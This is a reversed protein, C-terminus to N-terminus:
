AESVEDLGQGEQLQQWTRLLLTNTNGRVKLPLGVLVVCRDEPALDPVCRRIRQVAQQLLVALSAEQGIVPEVGFAIHIQRAVRESPTVAFIPLRPRRSSLRLATAGSATPAILCRAGVRHALDVAADVLAEVPSSGTRPVPSPRLHAEATKLIRRAWAVTDVPYRGVATEDSLLIGDAGQLLALTVDTVEARTPRPLDVMSAMTQTAVHVPRHHRRATQIIRRQLHPLETLDVALGLDGRAVIVADALEVIRELHDLAERREIKVMLRTPHDQLLRRAEELDRPHQVYSLAVYDFGANLGLELLRRDEPGLSPLYPGSPLTVGKGSRLLGGRLVRTDVPPGPDVVELEMEGDGLLIRDGPNLAKWFGPLRVSVGREDGPRDDDYLLFRQGRQLRVQDQAVSGVRIKPGPLDQIAALPMQLEQEVTRLRQLAELHQEPTGHSFNFRFGRAGAQALARIVPLDRSAPGLTAIIRGQIEPRPLHM